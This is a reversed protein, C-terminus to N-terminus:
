GDRKKRREIVKTEERKLLYLALLVIGVEITWAMVGAFVAQM